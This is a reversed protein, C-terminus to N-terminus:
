TLEPILQNNYDYYSMVYQREIANFEAVLKLSEGKAPTVTALDAIIENTDLNKWGVFEYNYQNTSAKIPTQMAIGTPGNVSTLVDLAINGDGKVQYYVVNNVDSVYNSYFVIDAAKTLNVKDSYKLIVNPFTKSYKNYVSYEDVTCEVDVTINGILDTVRDGKLPIGESLHNLAILGIVSTDNVELDNITNVTWDFETIHFQKSINNDTVAFKYTYDNLAPCKEINVSALQMEFGDEAEFTSIETLGSAVISGLKNVKLTEIIGNEPLILSKITSGTM